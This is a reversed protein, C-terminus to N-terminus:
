KTHNVMVLVESPLLDFVEISPLGNEPQKVSLKRGPTWEGKYGAPDLAQSACFLLTYEQGASSLRTDVLVSAGRKETGHTNIICLVEEDNLIRSWATIEGPGKVSFSADNFAIPRLYQRGFRLAPISQRLKALTSYGRFVPNEEDFCHYGRTGFPGFGPLTEDKPEKNDPLGLVGDKLPHEPGFLAERLYVDSRKWNPLWQREEPEPGTLGQESGSYVCPIGLTFLLLAAAAVQQREGTSEVGFRIKDGFVHDHDDLISVHRSGLNRHTGMIATGEDFGAFFYGPHEEGKALRNLSLRMEGIDLAANLNRELVDLYRDEVYDGGAIEGVLFFDAKGINAAYEKIAGCFRRAEDLSVHKLTDIRFGDCDTLAIWYQYCRVLDEIVGSGMLEFNRLDEFDTRKHEALANDIEGLGLNGRGARTYVETNQLEAPWVGEDPGQISEIPEGNVGRWNGFPYQGEIYSPTFADEGAGYLWNAGSHNFITDLIVRLGMGHAKEVLDVLDQRTGLRPDVDLFDQIAYGHYTNQHGRQKFVPGLWITTIGLKKLYGLQGMLGKLNGGQWREGGSKVWLDWRWTEEPNMPKRADKLKSRDLLPRTAELGDSFRDPLLFYLIEERWDVPSPYYAERRPLKVDRIRDPRKKSLTEDIFKM